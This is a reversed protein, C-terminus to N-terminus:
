APTRGSNQEGGSLDSELPTRYPATEGVNAAQKIRESRAMSRRYEAESDTTHTEFTDM